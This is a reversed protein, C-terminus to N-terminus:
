DLCITVIGELGCVESFLEETGYLSFNYIEAHACDASYKVEQDMM